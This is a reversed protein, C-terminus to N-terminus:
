LLGKRSAYLAVETRTRGDLGLKRRAAALHNRVTLTSIGLAQGVQKDRLGEAVFRIVETERPTLISLTM